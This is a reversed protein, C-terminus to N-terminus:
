FPIQDNLEGRATEKPKREDKRKISLSLFKGKQGEKIWGNLWHEVGGVTITGTYDPHNDTEKRDNRFLIGSNDYKKTPMSCDGIRLTPIDDEATMDAYKDFLGCVHKPLWGRHRNCENCRLEAGHPPTGPLVRCVNGHCPNTRDVNRDMRVLQPTRDTGAFLDPASM